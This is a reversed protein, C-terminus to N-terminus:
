DLPREEREGYATLGRPKFVSLVTTTLLVVIGGAAHVVPSLRAASMPGPELAGESALAALARMPEVQMLLVLTAVLTLALKIVVWYHRLLGWRTGLSMVLGTALAALALPVIVLRTTVDMALYAGAVTAADRANLGALALALFAAAAGLWGVSAVVHAVLAADRVRPPLTM